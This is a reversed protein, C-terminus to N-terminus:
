ASISFHQTMLGFVMSWLGFVTSLLVMRSDSWLVPALHQFASFSFHQTMLRPLSPRPGFASFSFHQFASVSFYQFVSISFYQFVSASFCQGNPTTQTTQPNADLATSHAGQARGPTGAGTAPELGPSATERRGPVTRNQCLTTTVNDSEGRKAPRMGLSAERNELM